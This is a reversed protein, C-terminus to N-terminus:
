ATAADSQAAGLTTPEFGVQSSVKQSGFVTIGLRPTKTDTKHINTYNGSPTYEWHPRQGRLVYM